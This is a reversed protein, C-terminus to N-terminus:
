GDSEDGEKCKRFLTPKFMEVRLTKKDGQNELIWKWLDSPNKLCLAKGIHGGIYGAKYLAELLEMYARDYGYVVLTAVSKDGFLYVVMVNHTIQAQM